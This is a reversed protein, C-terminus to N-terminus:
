CGMLESSSPCWQGGSEMGEGTLDVRYFVTV